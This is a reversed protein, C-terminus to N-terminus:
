GQKVLVPKIIRQLAAYGNSSTPPQGEFAFALFSDISNDGWIGNDTFSITLPEDKSNVGNMGTGEMWTYYGAVTDWGCLYIFYGSYTGLYQFKISLTGLSRMYEAQITGQSYFGTITYTKNDPNNIVKVTTNGLKYTGILQDYFRYGEPYFAEFKADVNADTCVYSVDETDAKFRSMTVGGITLPEYLEIGDSTYVFPIEKKADLEGAGAYTLTFVNKDQMVSGIEKGNVKLHFTGLFIDEQTKIVAKLYDSWAQEKPMPVLVITNRTKTGSLIVKDPAASMITFQFEGAYGKLPESFLHMIENYSDFTLVPGASQILSYLSTVSKDPDASEGAIKANGSEDFSILLNYGGFSLDDSPYYKMIWGNEPAILIEKYKKLAESMRNASSDNFFDEEEHLSCASVILLALMSIVTYIKQKRM